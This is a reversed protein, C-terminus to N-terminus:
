ASFGPITKMKELLTVTEFPKILYGNAGLQEATAIVAPTDLQSILIVPINGGIQDYRILNLIELGSLGPMLIDMVVLDPKFDKISVFAELCQSASMVEFGKETLGFSLMKCTLEDDDVVLIKKRTKM